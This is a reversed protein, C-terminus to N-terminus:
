KIGTGPKFKDLQEKAKKVFESEPYDKLLKNYFPEAKEPENLRVYAEGLWYLVEDMRSFEPHTNIIEQLRDIGGKYAKRKNISWRAVELNHKSNIELVKDREPELKGRVPGQASITICVVVLWIFTAAFEVRRVAM